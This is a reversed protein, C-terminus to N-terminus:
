WVSLGAIRVIPMDDCEIASSRERTLTLALASAQWWGAMARLVSWYVWGGTATRERERRLWRGRAMTAERMGVIRPRPLAHPSLFAARSVECVARGAADGVAGEGLETQLANDGDLM